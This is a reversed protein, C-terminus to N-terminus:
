CQVIGAVAGSSPGDTSFTNGNAILNIIEFTGTESVTFTEVTALGSFNPGTAVGTLTVSFSTPSCVPFGVEDNNATFTFSNAAVNNDVYEISVFSGNIMCDPCIGASFGLTGSSPQGNIIVGTNAVPTPFTSATARCDCLRRLGM